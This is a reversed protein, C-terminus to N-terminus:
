AVAIVAAAIGGGVLAHVGWPSSAAPAPPSVPEPVTFALTTAPTPDAVPAVGVTHAGATTPSVTAATDTVNTVQVGDLLVDYSDADVVFIWDFGTDGSGDQSVQQLGTVEDLM